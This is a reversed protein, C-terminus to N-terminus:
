TLGDTNMPCVLLSGIHVSVWMIADLDWGRGWGKIPGTGVSQNMTTSGIHISEICVYM